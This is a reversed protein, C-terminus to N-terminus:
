KGPCGASFLFQEAEGLTKFIDTTAGSGQMLTAEYGKPMWNGKWTFVEGCPFINEPSHKFFSESYGANTERFEKRPAVSPESYHAHSDRDKSIARLGIVLLVGILTMWLVKQWPHRDGNDSM